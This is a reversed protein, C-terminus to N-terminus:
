RAEPRHPGDEAKDSDAPAAKDSDVTASAPASDTDGLLARGRAIMVAKAREFEEDTLQGERHMRRLDTLTFPEDDAAKIQRNFHRYAIMAAGVLVVAGVAILGLMWITQGVFQQRPHGEAIVLWLGSM